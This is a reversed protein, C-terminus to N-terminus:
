SSALAGRLVSASAKGFFASLYLTPKRLLGKSVLYLAILLRGIRGNGDCYPHITEFQYHSLAIRILHPVHITEDHWFKELDSMLEPVEDPHPPVYLAGGPENRASKALFPLVRYLIPM